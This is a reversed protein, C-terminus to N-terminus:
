SCALTVVFVVGLLLALIYMRMFLFVLALAFVLAPAFALLRMYVPKRKGHVMSAAKTGLPMSPVKESFVPIEQSGTQEQPTPTGFMAAELADLADACLVTDLGENDHVKQALATKVRLRAGADPANKLETYVSHEICRCFVLREVKSERAAYDSVYGKMRQPNALIDEGQEDIIRKIIAAFNTNM